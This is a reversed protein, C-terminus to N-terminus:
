QNFNKIGSITSYYNKLFAIYIGPSAILVMIIKVLCPKSSVAMSAEFIPPEPIGSLPLLFSLLNCNLLSIRLFGVLLRFSYSDQMIETDTRHGSKVWHARFESIM